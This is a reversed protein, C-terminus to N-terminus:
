FLQAGHALIVSISERTQGVSPDAASPRLGGTPLLRLNPPHRECRQRM